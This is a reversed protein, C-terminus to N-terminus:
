AIGHISLIRAGRLNGRAGLGIWIWYLFAFRAAHIKAPM